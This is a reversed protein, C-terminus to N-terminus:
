KCSEPLLVDVAVGVARAAAGAHRLGVPRGKEWGIFTARSVGIKHAAQEQTLGNVARWRLFVRSKDM